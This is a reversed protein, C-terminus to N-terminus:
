PHPEFIIITIYSAVKSNACCFLIMSSLRINIKTDIIIIPVNTTRVALLILSSNPLFQELFYLAWPQDPILTVVPAKKQFYQSICEIVFFVKSFLQCSQPKSMACHVDQVDPTSVMQCFIESIGSPLYITLDSKPFELWFNLLVNQPLGSMGTRLFSVSHQKGNVM